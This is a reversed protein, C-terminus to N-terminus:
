NLRVGIAEKVYSTIFDKPRATGHRDPIEVLLPLTRALKIEDVLEQFQKALKETVLLIAIDKDALAKESASLFESKTHVVTGEIGVLRLGTFTDTNDSIVYMKM